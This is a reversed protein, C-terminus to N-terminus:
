LLEVVSAVLVPLRVRRGESSVPSARRKLRRRVSRRSVDLFLQEARTVRWQDAAHQRGLGRGSRENSHGDKSSSTNVSSSCVFLAWVEKGLLYM